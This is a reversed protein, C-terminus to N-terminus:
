KCSKKKNYLEEGDMNKFEACLKSKKKLLEKAQKIKNQTRVGSLVESNIKNFNESVKLCDCFKRDTSGCEVFFLLSVIFVLIKKM